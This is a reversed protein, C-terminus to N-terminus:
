IWNPLSPGSKMKTGGAYATRYFLFAFLKNVEQPRASRVRNEETTYSDLLM